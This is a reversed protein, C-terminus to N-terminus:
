RGDESHWFAAETLTLTGHLDFLGVGFEAFEAPGVELDTGGVRDAAM